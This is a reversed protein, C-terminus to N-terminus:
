PGGPAGKRGAACLERFLGDQPRNGSSLVNDIPGGNQVFVTGIGLQCQYEYTSVGYRQGGVDVIGAIRGESVTFSDPLLRASGQRIGDISAPTSCGAALAAAAVFLCRDAFAM